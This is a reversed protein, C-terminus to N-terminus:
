TPLNNPFIITLLISHLSDFYFADVTRWFISHAPSSIKWLFKLLTLPVYMCTLLNFVIYLFSQLFKTAFHSLCVSFACLLTHLCATAPSSFILSYTHTNNWFLSSCMQLRPSSLLYWSYFHLHLFSPLDRSSLSLGWPCNRERSEPYSTLETHLYIVTNTSSPISPQCLVASFM